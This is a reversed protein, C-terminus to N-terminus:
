EPSPQTQGRELQELYMLEEPTLGKDPATPQAPLAPSASPQTARPSWTQGPANAPPASAWGGTRTPITRLGGKLLPPQQPPNAAPTAPAPSSSEKAFTITLITGYDDVTVTSAKEDVKLLEIDGEREGEALILPKDIAKEGAKAAPLREKLLATKNGLITTIGTLIVKPATPGPNTPEAGPLPEPKLNFINRQAIVGYDAGSSDPAPVAVGAHGVLIGVGCLQAV